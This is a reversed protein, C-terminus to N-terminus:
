EGNGGTLEDPTSGDRKFQEAQQEMMDAALNVLRDMDLAGTPCLVHGSSQDLEYHGKIFDRTCPITLQNCLWLILKASSQYQADTVPLHGVVSASSAAVHEIGVTYPNAKAAHWAIDQIGILQYVTAQEDRDIVFHASKRHPKVSTRFSNIAGDATSGETIHLAIGRKDSLKGPGSHGVLPTWKSGPYIIDSV